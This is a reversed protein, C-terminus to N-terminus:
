QDSIVQCEAKGGGVLPEEGMESLLRAISFEGELKLPKNEGMMANDVQIARIREATTAKVEGYAIAALLERKRDRTLLAESKSAERLERLYAQVEERKVLKSAEGDAAKGRAAYGAKEYARGQPMGGAVFEAFRRQRDNLAKM